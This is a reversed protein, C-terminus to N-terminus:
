SQGRRVAGAPDRELGWVRRCRKAGLVGVLLAVATLVVTGGPALDLHYASVLGVVVAVEGFVVALGLAGRFSRAVQLSAAVPLILLSSVLLVGVVRMAIAVTIATLLTFLVNLTRVPLGSTRALEEDFTIFFLEKYLLAVVLLIGIGLGAITLLDRRAVTMISGFLYSFLDANMSKGLSILVVALAVSFSLTIAVALEGYRRYAERLKEIGLGAALAFLLATVVPYVKMLLGMAVGALSVHALTDGILSLRRLVLFLGIVPCILGVVTGALFARQMFGFTFVELM